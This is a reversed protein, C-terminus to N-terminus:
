EIPLLCPAIKGSFGIIGDETYMLPSKLYETMPIAEMIEVTGIFIEMIGPYTLASNEIIVIV